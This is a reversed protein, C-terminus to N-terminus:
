LLSNMQYYFQIYNMNKHYTYASNHGTGPNFRVQWIGGVFLNNVRGYNEGALFPRFM